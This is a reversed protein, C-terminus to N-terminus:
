AVIIKTLIKFMRGWTKHLWVKSFSLKLKCNKYALLSCLTSSKISHDVRVTVFSIKKIKDIWQISSSKQLLSVCTSNTAHCPSCGQILPDEKGYGFVRFWITFGYASGPIKKPPAWPRNWGSTYQSCLPSSGVAWM